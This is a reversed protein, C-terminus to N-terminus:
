RSKPSMNARSRKIGAGPRAHQREIYKPPAMRSEVRRPVDSQVLTTGRRIAATATRQRRKAQPSMAARDYRRSAKPSQASSRKM